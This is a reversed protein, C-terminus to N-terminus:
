ILTKKERLEIWQWILVGQLIESWRSSKDVVVVGQRSDNGWQVILIMSTPNGSANGRVNSVAMHEAYVAGSVTHRIIIGQLYEM